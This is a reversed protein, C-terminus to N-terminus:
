DPIYCESAEFNEAILDILYITKDISSINDLIKTQSFGDILTKSNLAHLWSQKQKNLESKLSGLKILMNSEVESQKELTALASKDARSGDELTKNLQNLAERIKTM